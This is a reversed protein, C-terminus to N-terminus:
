REAHELYKYQSKKLSTMVRMGGLRRPISEGAIIAFWLPILPLSFEILLVLPFYWVGNLSVQKGLMQRQNCGSYKVFYQSPRACGPKCAMTEWTMGFKKKQLYKLFASIEKWSPYVQGHNWIHYGTLVVQTYRVELNPDRAGNM